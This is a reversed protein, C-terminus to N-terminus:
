VYMFHHFNTFSPTKLKWTGYDPAPPAMVVFPGPSVREHGAPFAPNTNVPDTRRDPPVENPFLERVYQSKWPESDKDSFKSRMHEDYHHTGHELAVDLIDKYDEETMSELGREWVVYTDDDAFRGDLLKSYHEEVFGDFNIGRLWRMEGVSPPRLRYGNALMDKVYMVCEANSWTAYIPVQLKPLPAALKVDAPLDKLGATKLQVDGMDKEPTIADIFYENSRLFDVMADGAPKKDAITPYGSTDSKQTLSQSSQHDPAKLSGYSKNYNSQSIGTAISMGDSRKSKLEDTVMNVDWIKPANVPSDTEYGIEVARIRSAPITDPIDISRKQEPIDTGTVAPHQTPQPINSGSRKLRLKAKRSSM